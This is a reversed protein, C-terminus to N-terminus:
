YNLSQFDTCDPWLAVRPSHELIVVLCLKRDPATVAAIRAAMVAVVGAEATGSNEVVGVKIGIVPSADL